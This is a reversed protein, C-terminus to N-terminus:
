PRRRACRPSGPSPGTPSWPRARRREARRMRLADALSAAMPKEVCVHAGAAACAEVVGAHQANECSVIVIDPREQRLMERYDDYTKSLGLKEVLHDLNWRRTYPAVRREPCLPTTDAGAAWEVDPHAGYLAAVHNIHMHAFGIIAVRYKKNM